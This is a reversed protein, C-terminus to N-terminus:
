AVAWPLPKSDSAPATIGATGVQVLQAVEAQPAVAPEAKPAMVANFIKTAAELTLDVDGSGSFIAAASSICSLKTVRIKDEPSMGGGGGLAPKSAGTLGQSGNQPSAAGQQPNQAVQGGPTSLSEGLAGALNVGTLNRYPNGGNPNPKEEISVTVTGGSKWAEDAKAAVAYEWATAKTGDAFYVDWKQKGTKTNGAFFKIIQTTVDM